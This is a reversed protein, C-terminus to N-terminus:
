LECKGLLRVPFLAAQDSRRGENLAMLQYLPLDSLASAICRESTGLSSSKWSAWASMNYLASVSVEGTKTVPSCKKKYDYPFKVANEVFSFSPLQQFEEWSITKTGTEM